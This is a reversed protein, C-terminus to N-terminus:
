EKISTIKLHFYPKLIASSFVFSVFRLCVFLELLTGLANSRAIYQAHKMWLFRFYRHPTACIELSGRTNVGHLM